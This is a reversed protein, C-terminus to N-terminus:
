IILVFINVSIMVKQEDGTALAFISCYILSSLLLVKTSILM